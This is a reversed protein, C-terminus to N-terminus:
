KKLYWHRRREQALLLDEEDDDQEDALQLHFGKRLHMWAHTVTDCNHVLVGNAYFNHSGAVTLNYM